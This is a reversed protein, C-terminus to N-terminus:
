GLREYNKTRYARRAAIFGKIFYVMKTDDERSIKTGDKMPAVSSEAAIAWLQVTGREDNAHYKRILLQYPTFNELFAQQLRGLEKYNLDGCHRDLLFAKMEVAQHSAWYANYEM